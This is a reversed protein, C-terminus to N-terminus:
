KSASSFKLTMTSYEFPFLNVNVGNIMVKPGSEIVDSGSEAPTVSNFLYSIVGLVASKFSHRLFTAFM